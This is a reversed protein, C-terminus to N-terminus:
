FPTEPRTALWQKMKELNGVSEVINKFKDYKVYVSTVREKNDFFDTLFGFIVIDALSLNDGLVYYSNANHSVLICELSNLQIPLTEDFYKAFAADKEEASVSRVKQYADKFDRITECISDVFAAEEPTNGMLGFKYALFREIAKSQFIVNGGVELTPLKDMSRWLKGATKDADFEDRQFKFISWDIVTLPYRFDEFEVGAVAFLMRSTEALGRGNFYSLKYQTHSM